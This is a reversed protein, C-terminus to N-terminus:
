CKKKSDKKMTERGAPLPASKGLTGAKLQAKKIAKQTKEIQEPAQESKLKLKLWETRINKSVKEVAKDISKNLEGSKMKSPAKLGAEKLETKYKRVFVLSEKQTPM